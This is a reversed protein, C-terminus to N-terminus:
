SMRSRTAVTSFDSVYRKNGLNRADLFVTVGRQFEFSAQLGFLVYSWSPGHWLGILVMTTVIPAVMM